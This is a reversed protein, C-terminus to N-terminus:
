VEEVKGWALISAAILVSSSVVSRQAETMRVSENLDTTTVVTELLGTRM